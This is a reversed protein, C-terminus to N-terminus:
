FTEGKQKKRSRRNQFWNGVQYEKVGLSNALRLRTEKTPYSDMDFHMELLATQARNFLHKASIPAAAASGALLHSAASTSSSSSAAAAAM